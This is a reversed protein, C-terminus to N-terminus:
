LYPSYPNKLPIYLWSESKGAEIIHQEINVTGEESLDPECEELLVKTVEAHGNKAAAMLATLKQGSADPVFVSALERPSPVMARNNLIDEVDQPSLTLSDLSIDNAVKLWKIEEIFSQLESHNGELALRCFRTIFGLPDDM